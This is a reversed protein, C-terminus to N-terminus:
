EVQLKIFNGIVSESKIVNVFANEDTAKVVELVTFLEYSTIVMLLIEKSQKSYAGKAPILTIGRVLRQHLEKVLTESKDTIIMLTVKKHRTHIMNIVQMSIYLNIITYLAIEWGGLFGAVTIIVLNLSFSYKGFSGDYKHALYQSVIDMGGTSAGVKLTLGVGYGSIVGGFIVNVLIDDSIEIIPVVALVVFGLLVSVMSYLTFRKGVHKFGIYFVPLNLVLWIINFPVEIGLYREFITSFLQGLGAFGGTYIGAPVIFWQLGIVYIISGLSVILLNKVPNFVEFGFFKNFKM